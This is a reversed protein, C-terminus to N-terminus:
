RKVEESQWKEVAKLFEDYEYIANVADCFASSSMGVPLESFKAFSERKQRSDVCGSLGYIYLDQKTIPKHASCKKCIIGSKKLADTIVAEDMGEVGLYGEKSPANKRKEKGKIQPIYVNKITETGCIKKLYSRIQMGASDSDTIIILGKKRALLRIYKIKEKDKFVSFGNTPVIVADIFNSLKIKDYKGEVIVAEGLKIM